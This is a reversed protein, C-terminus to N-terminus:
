PVRFDRALEIVHLRTVLFPVLWVREVVRCRMGCGGSLLLLVRVRWVEQDGTAVSEGLLRV